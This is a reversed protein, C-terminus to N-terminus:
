GPGAAAQPPPRPLLVRELILVTLVSFIGAFVVDSLFHGGALMRGFGILAGFTLAAAVYRARRGAVLAFGLTGFAFAADGSVFSCNRPCQDAIVFAPTFQKDGGFEVIQSPRARGWNDKFIGNAVIGTGIGFCLLLFLFRRWDLGFIPRRRVLTVLLGIALVAIIIRALNRTGKAWVVGILEHSWLFAGDGLYLARAAALDIQPVAIFLVAAAVGIAVTLWIDRLGTLEDGRIDTWTM